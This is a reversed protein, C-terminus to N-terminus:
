ECAGDSGKDIVEIVRNGQFQAPSAIFKPKGQVQVETPANVPVDTTIVDGLQMSLVDSLRLKTEALLARLEVSANELNRALNEIDRQPDLAPLVDSKLEIVPKPLCLSMMGGLPFLGGDNITAQMRMVTVVEDAPMIRADRPDSLLEEERVVLDPSAAKWTDALQGAAREIIALALGREIQTLRRVPIADAAACSGGLLRNIVPFLFQPSLDLIGQAAPPDFRPVSICGPSSLSGLFDDFRGEEIGASTIQVPSGIHQTLQDAFACAFTSLMAELKSAGHSLARQPPNRFDYPVPKSSPQPM